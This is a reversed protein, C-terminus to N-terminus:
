AEGACIAVTKSDAKWPWSAAWNRTFGSSPNARAHLVQEIM